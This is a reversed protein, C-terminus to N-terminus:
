VQAKFSKAIKLSNFDAQMAITLAIARIKHQTTASVLQLYWNCIGTASVLQLYWNCIGTASVLDVSYLIGL